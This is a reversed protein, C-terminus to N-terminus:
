GSLDDNINELARVVPQGFCKPPSPHVNPWSFEPCGIARSTCHWVGSSCPMPCRSPDCQTGAACQSCVAVCREKGANRLCVPVCACVCAPRTEDHCHTPIPYSLHELSSEVGSPHRNCSAKEGSSSQLAGADPAALFLLLILVDPQPSSRCSM